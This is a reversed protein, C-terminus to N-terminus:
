MMKSQEKEPDVQETEPEIILVDDITPTAPSPPADVTPLGTAAAPVTYPKTAQKTQKASSQSTSPPPSSSSSTLQNLPVGHVLLNLKPKSKPKPSPPQQSQPQQPQPKTASKSSKTDRVDRMERVERVDGVGGRGGIGVSGGVSGRGSGGNVRLSPPSGVNFVSMALPAYSSFLHNFYDTIAKSNFLITATVIFGTVLVFLIKIIHMADYCSLVYGTVCGLLFPAIKMTHVTQIAEKILVRSINICVDRVGRVM